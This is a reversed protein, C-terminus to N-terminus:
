AKNGEQERFTGRGNYRHRLLHPQLLTEPLNSTEPLNLAIRAPIDQIPRFQAVFLV